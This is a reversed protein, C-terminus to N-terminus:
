GSVVKLGIIGSIILLIFFLRLIHTSENFFIIGLIVTGVAGIGTWVAYATGVPLGKLAKALFLISILMTIATIVTPWFKTFGESYKMSIAWATEFLGAIFLFIWEM